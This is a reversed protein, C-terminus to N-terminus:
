FYGYKLSSIKSLLTFKGSGHYMGFIILFMTRHDPLTKDIKSKYKKVNKFILINKVVFSM